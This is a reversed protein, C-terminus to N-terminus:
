NEDREKRNVWKIFFVIIDYEQSKVLSVSSICIKLNEKIKM